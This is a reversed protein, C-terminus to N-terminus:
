ADVAQLKRLSALTAAVAKSQKRHRKLASILESTKSLSDRLSVRVAEAQQILVEFGQDDAKASTTAQPSTRGNAEGKGNGNTTSRPMTVKRKRPKRNTTSVKQGAPPSEIRIADDAPKIASEPSLVAWLYQRYDDRCLVPVKPTYLHVESFGLKVARALFKRNM